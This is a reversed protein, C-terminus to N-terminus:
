GGRCVMDVIKIANEQKVLRKHGHGMDSPSNRQRRSVVIENRTPNRCRSQMTNEREIRKHSQILVVPFGPRPTNHHDGVKKRWEKGKM